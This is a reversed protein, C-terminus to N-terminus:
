VYQSWLLDVHIVLRTDTKDNYMSVNRGCFSSFERGDYQLFM